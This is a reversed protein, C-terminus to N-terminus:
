TCRRLLILRRLQALNNNALPKIQAALLLSYAGRVHPCTIGLQDM